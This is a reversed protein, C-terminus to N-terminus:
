MLVYSMREKNNYSTNTDNLKIKYLCKVDNCVVCWLISKISFPTFHGLYFNYMLNTLHNLKVLAFLLFKFLSARM